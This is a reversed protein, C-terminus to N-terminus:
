DFPGKGTRCAKRADKWGASCRVELEDHYYPNSGFVKGQRFAQYGCNYANWFHHRSIADGPPLDDIGGCLGFMITNGGGPNLNGPNDQAIDCRRNHPMDAHSVGVVALLAVVALPTRILTSGGQSLRMRRDISCLLGAISDCGGFEAFLSVSFYTM